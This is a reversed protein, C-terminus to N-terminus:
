SNNRLRVRASHVRRRRGDQASLSAATRNGTVEGAGMQYHINPDDARTVTVLNVGVELLTSMDPRSTIPSLEWPQATGGATGFEEGADVIRDEDEDFLFTLQFDEVDTALLQGNRRLLNPAGGVGLTVQYVLAPIAVVDANTGVAGTSTGGLNATITNGAIQTITGCAVPEDEKRRNAIIVGEGVAFDAGDAAVDIWLRAVTFAFSTGTANFTLTSTVPAGFSQTLSENDDELDFITRIRSTDSVFLTDPGGTLDFACVAAHPPVMYGSRRLDREILESVARLNQQAETVQDIVVHTRQQTLFAQSVAVMLVLLIASAILLEVLTFGANRRDSKM